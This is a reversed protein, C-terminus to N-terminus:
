AQLAAWLAAGVIGSVAVGGLFGPVPNLRTPEPDSPVTYPLRDPQPLAVDIREDPQTSKAFPPPAPPALPVYSQAAAIARVLSEAAPDGRNARSAEAASSWAPVPAVPIIPLPIDAEEPFAISDALPAPQAHDAEVPLSLPAHDDTAVLALDPADDSFDTAGLHETAAAFEELLSKHDAILNALRAAVETLSAPTQPAPPAEDLEWELHPTDDAAIAELSITNPPVPTPLPPSAMQPPLPPPLRAAAEKPAPGANPAPDADLADAPADDASDSELLALIQAIEDEIADADLEVPASTKFLTALSVADTTRYSAVPPPPVVKEASRAVAIAPPAPAELKMDVVSRRDRSAVRSPIVIDSATITEISPM